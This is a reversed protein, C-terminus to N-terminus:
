TDICPAWDSDSFAKLHLSNDTPFYLGQSDNAKIYRLVHHAADLHLKRSTDSLQSLRHVNYTINPRTHSM